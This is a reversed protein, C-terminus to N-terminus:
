LPEKASSNSAKFLEYATHIAIAIWNDQATKTLAKVEDFAQDKWEAFAANNNVAALKTIIVLIDAMHSNFFQDLGARVYFVKSFGFVKKLANGLKVFFNKM